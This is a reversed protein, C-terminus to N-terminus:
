ILIHNQNKLNRIHIVHETKDHLITVLNEVYEIEIREPLFTLYNHFGHIKKPYQVNKLINLFYGEDIEGNYNKIFDENFEFTDKIWQFKNIPLKQMQMQMNNVDWYEFYSSEKNKNYDKMYKNSAKGYRHIVHCIEERIAKEVM